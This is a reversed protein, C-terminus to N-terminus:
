LTGRINDQYTSGVRVSDRLLIIRTPPGLDQVLVCSKHTM